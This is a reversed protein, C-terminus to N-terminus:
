QQTGEAVPVTPAPDSVGVQTMTTQVAPNIVDLAPKPYFGLAVILVILPAVVWVERRSMDTWSKVHETVPGTCMRQYTWLIYLAALIIATTAVIAAAPYRTFTGVLSLFESVFSNLGPLALGALGAVLFSGAIMPAVRQVGGFDAIM